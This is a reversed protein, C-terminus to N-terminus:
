TGSVGPAEVVEITHPVHAPKVAAVVADLRRRDVAAADPVRVRVRLSAAARGPMPGGAVPSWSTGGSDDIEIEGGVVLRVAEAIGRLTGRRRHLEVAGAVIERRRAVSWRDDPEIGVWGCLWDLFDAPALAPDVYGALGDLTVFVPALADDFAAVFRQLLEDEQYVGPLHEFVPATSPVGPLM